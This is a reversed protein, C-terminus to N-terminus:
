SARACTFPDSRPIAGSGAGPQESSMIKYVQDKAGNRSLQEHRARCAGKCREGRSGLGGAGGPQCGRNRRRVSRDVSIGVRNWGAVASDNAQLAPRSAGSSVSAGQELHPKLDHEVLPITAGEIWVPKSSGHAIEGSPSRCSWAIGGTCVPLGECRRTGNARRPPMGNQWTWTWASAQADTRATGSRSEISAGGCTRHRSNGCRVCATVDRTREGM